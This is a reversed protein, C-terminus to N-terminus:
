KAAGGPAPPVLSLGITVAADEAVQVAADANGAREDAAVKSVAQLADLLQAQHRNAKAGMGAISLGFGLVALGTTADIKGVWVGAVGAVMVLGGGLITKKGEFWNVAAAWIKGM